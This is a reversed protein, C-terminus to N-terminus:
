DSVINPYTLTVQAAIQVAYFGFDSGGGWILVNKGKPTANKSPKDLGLHIVLASMPGYVTIASV